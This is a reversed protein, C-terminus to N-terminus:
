TETANRKKNTYTHTHAYATRCWAADQTNHTLFALYPTPKVAIDYPRWNKKEKEKM